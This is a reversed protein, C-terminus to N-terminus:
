PKRPSTCPFSHVEFAFHQCSYTEDGFSGPERRAPVRAHRALPTAVLGVDIMEGLDRVQEGDRGIARIGLQDRGAPQM